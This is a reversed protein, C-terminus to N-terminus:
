GAFKDPVNVAKIKPACAKVTMEQTRMAELTCDHPLAYQNSDAEEARVRLEKRHFFFLRSHLLSRLRIRKNVRGAIAIIHCISLPIKLLRQLRLILFFARALSGDAGNPTVLAIQLQM